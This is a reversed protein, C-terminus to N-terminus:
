PPTLERASWSFSTIDAPVDYCRVTFGSANPTGVISWTAGATANGVLAVFMIDVSYYISPMNAAFSITYNNDGVAIVQNGSRNEVPLALIANNIQIIQENLLAIQAPTVLGAGPINVTANALYQQFAQNFKDTDTGSFCVSKPILPILLQAM